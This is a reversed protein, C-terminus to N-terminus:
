FRVTQLFILLYDIYVKKRGFIFKLVCVCVCMRLLDDKSGGGQPAIITQVWTEDPQGAPATSEWLAALSICPKFYCKM